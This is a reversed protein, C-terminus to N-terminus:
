AHSFVEFREQPLLADVHVGQVIAEWKGTNEDLQVLRCTKGNLKQFNVGELGVIKAEAGPFFEVADLKDLPLRADMESELLMKWRGSRVDFSVLTGLCGQWRPPEKDAVSTVKVVMGPKLKSHSSRLAIRAGATKAAKQFAARTARDDADEDSDSGPDDDTRDVTTSGGAPPAMAHPRAPLKGSPDAFDGSAADWEVPRGTKQKQQLMIRELQQYVPHSTHYKDSKLWLGQNEYYDEDSRDHFDFTQFGLWGFCADAFYKFVLLGILPVVTLVMCGRAADAGRGQVSPLLLFYAFIPLVCSCAFVFRLACKAIHYDARYPRKSKLLLKRKVAYYYVSLGCASILPALPLMPMYMTTAVFLKLPVAFTKSVGLESPLFLKNYQIQTTEPTQKESEISRGLLPYV